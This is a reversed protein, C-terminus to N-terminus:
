CGPGGRRVTFFGAGHASVSAQFTGSSFTGPVAEGSWNDVATWCPSPADTCHVDSGATGPLSIGMSTVNTDASNFLAVIIADSDDNLCATWAYLGDAAPGPAPIALTTPANGYSAANVQLMVKNTLLNLTWVDDQELPLLAGIILPARVISWLTMLLTQENHTFKCPTPPVGNGRSQLGLPLMDLDPFTGNADILAAYNSAVDLKSRLAPWGDDHFDPTVRYMVGFKGNHSAIWSGNMPTM